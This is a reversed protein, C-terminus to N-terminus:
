KRGMDITQYRECTASHLQWCRLTSEGAIKIFKGFIVSRCYSPIICFFGNRLRLIVSYKHYRINAIRARENPRMCEFSGIYMIHSRESERKDHIFVPCLFPLFPLRSIRTKARCPVTRKIACRYRNM